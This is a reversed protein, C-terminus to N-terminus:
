GCNDKGDGQVMGSASRSSCVSGDGQLLPEM